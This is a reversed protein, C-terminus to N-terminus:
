TINQEFFFIINQSKIKQVQIDFIQNEHSIVMVEWLDKSIFGHSRIPNGM